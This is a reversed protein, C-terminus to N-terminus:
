SSKESQEFVRHAETIRKCATEFHKESREIGYFERGELIAAVGTSGTGMFADCITKGPTSRVIANMISAPKVTPHGFIKSPSVNEKIAVDPWADDEEPESAFMGRRKDKLDGIPENGRNWCTFWIEVDAMFNKNAMPLPNNKSWFGMVCRHFNGHLYTSLTPVQDNSCFVTVNGTLLSNIISFDFGKDINLDTIENLYLRSKRLQGGGSTAIIYPPDMIDGDMWGLKPREEYADGCILRASGIDVIRPKQLILTM